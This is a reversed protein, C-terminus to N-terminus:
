VGKRATVHLHWPDDAIRTVEVFGAAFLAARLSRETYGSRHVDYEHTQWGYLSAIAHAHNTVRANFASKSDPAALLQRAHYYLDPLLIEAEGGPQLAEHWAKLARRGEAFTLHELMHRSYITEVTGATVHKLIDWANCVIEVGPLPRLDVSTYGPRHKEGSGINLKV